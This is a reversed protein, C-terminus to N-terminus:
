GPRRNAERSGERDARRAITRQLFPTARIVSKPRKIDGVYLFPRIVKGLEGLALEVNWAAEAAATAAERRSEKPFMEGQATIIAKTKRDLLEVIDNTRESVVGDFLWHAMRAAGTLEFLAVPEPPLGTMPDKEIGIKAIEESRKTVAKHSTDLGAIRRELLSAFLAQESTRKQARNIFLTAIGILVLFVGVQAPEPANRFWAIATKLADIM